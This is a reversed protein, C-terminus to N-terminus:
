EHLFNNSWPLQGMGTSRQGFGNTGNENEINPTELRYGTVNNYTVDSRAGQVERTVVVAQTWGHFLEGSYGMVLYKM